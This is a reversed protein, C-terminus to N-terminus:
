HTTQSSLHAPIQLTEIADAIRRWVTMGQDSGIRRYREVRGMAELLAGGGYQGILVTASRYIDIDPITM